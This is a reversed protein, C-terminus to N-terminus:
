VVVLPVRKKGTEVTKSYRLILVAPNKIGKEALVEPLAGLSAEVQREERTSVQEVIEIPLDAPVGRALLNARITPAQAVAMYFVVTTGPRTLESWDPEADGPKCTGTALVLRDTKGRETLARGLSAAAGSAATIGPVIEIPIGAVRAADLEETARGFVAPDGSKLRVVNQGRRAANLIVANIREQPWNHTGLAKGVYVREADRRALELIDPDVLRDYFIVDAEQLREVARLTLLDRAGPGAGVLAIHGTETPAEGTQAIRTKLMEAAKRESGARFMQWEPGSFVTRWFKLRPQGAPIRAAVADRLRGALAAFRGLSPDLMQEIETRIRRALVPATGETGIAVVVPDRDVISPTTIDCLAPQDVVNVTAGAQKALKHLAKDRAENGTALFVIATDAFHDATVPSPDHTIRKQDALAQLEPDLEPALVTIRASTKLMLRCKQAATEGGGAIVVSRDRLKIFMPFADM